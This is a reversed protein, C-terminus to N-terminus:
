LRIYREGSFLSVDIGLFENTITDNFRFSDGPKGFSYWISIKCENLNAYKDELFHNSVYNSNKFINVKQINLGDCNHLQFPFGTWVEIEHENKGYVLINANTINKLWLSKLMEEVDDLRSESINDFVVIMYARYNLLRSDYFEPIMEFQESNSIIVIYIPCELAFKRDQYDVILIKLTLFDSLETLLESNIDDIRQKHNMQLPKIITATPNNKIMLAKSMRAVAKSM